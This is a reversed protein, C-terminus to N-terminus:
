FLFIGLFILQYPYRNTDRLSLDANNEHHAFTFLGNYYFCHLSVTYPINNDGLFLIVCQQLWGESLELDLEALRQQIDPPLNPDRDAM